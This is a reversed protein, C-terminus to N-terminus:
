IEKDSGKEVRWFQCNQRFFLTAPRRYHPNGKRLRKCKHQTFCYGQNKVSKALNQRQSKVFPPMFCRQNKVFLRLRSHHFSYFELPAVSRQLVCKESFNADSVPPFTFKKAGLFSWFGSFNTGSPSNQASGDGSKM